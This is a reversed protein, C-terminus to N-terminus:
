IKGGLSATKARSGSPPSQLSRDFQPRVADGQNSEECTLSREVVLAPLVASDIECASGRVNKCSETVDAAYPTLAGSTATITARATPGSSACASTSREQEALASAPPWRGRFSSRLKDASSSSM